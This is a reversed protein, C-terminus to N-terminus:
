VVLPHRKAVVWLGSRQVFILLCRRRLGSGQVRWCPAGPLAQCAFAVSQSAFPSARRRGGRGVLARGTSGRGPSSMGPTSPDRLTREPSNRDPPDPWSFEARVRGGVGPRTGPGARRGWRVRGGVGPRAGPGAWRGRRVRGGVGAPGAWRGWPFEPSNRFLTFCSLRVRWGVGPVRGGVGALGGSGGM